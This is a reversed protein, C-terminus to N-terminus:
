MFEEKSIKGNGDKDVATIFKEIEKEQYKGAILTELLETKSIRGGGNKDFSDFAELM